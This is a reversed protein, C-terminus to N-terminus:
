EQVHVICPGHDRERQHAGGDDLAKAIVESRVQHVVRAEAHDGVQAVVEVFGSQAPGGAEKVPVGGAGDKGREDVVHIAHLDRDAGHM